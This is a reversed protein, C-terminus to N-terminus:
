KRPFLKRWMGWGIFFSLTGFCFGGIAGRYHEFSHNKLFHVSMLMAESGMLVVGVILFWKARHIRAVRDVEFPEPM